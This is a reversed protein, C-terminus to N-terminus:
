APTETSPQPTAEIKTRRRVIDRCEEVETAKAAVMEWNGGDRRCAEAQQYRQEARAKLDAMIEAREAARGDEREITRTTKIDAESPACLYYDVVERGDTTHPGHYRHVSLIHRHGGRLRYKVTSQAGITNRYCEEIMSMAELWALLDAGTAAPIKIEFM